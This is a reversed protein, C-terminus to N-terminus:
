WWKSNAPGLLDWYQSALHVKLLNKQVRVFLVCHHPPANRQIQM